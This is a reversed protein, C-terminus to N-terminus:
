RRPWESRRALRSRKLAREFHNASLATVCVGALWGGLVDTAWHEDEYIRSVGVCTPVCIALPLARSLPLVQDRALMYASTLAVATAGTTHGSPFSQEEDADGVQSPPRQRRILVKLLRHTAWAGLSSAIVPESGPARRRRLSAAVLLATTMYVAPYGLSSVALAVAHGTGGRHRRM